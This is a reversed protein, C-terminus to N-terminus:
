IFRNLMVLVIMVDSGAAEEYLEFLLVHANHYMKEKHDIRFVKEVKEIVVGFFMEAYKLKGM